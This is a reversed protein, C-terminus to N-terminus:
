KMKFVIWFIPAPALPAYVQCLDKYGYCITRRWKLLPLENSSFLCVHYQINDCVKCSNYLFSEVIIVKCIYAQSCCCWAPLWSYQKCIVEDVLLMLWWQPLQKQPGRTATVLARWCRTKPVMSKYSHSFDPNSIGLLTEQFATSPASLLSHAELACM